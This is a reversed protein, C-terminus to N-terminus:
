TTISNLFYIENRLAAKLGRRLSFGHGTGRPPTAERHLVPHCGQSPFLKQFNM